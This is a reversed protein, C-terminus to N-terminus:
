EEKLSSLAVITNSKVVGKIGKLTTSIFEELGKTGAVAVKLLYDYEGAIHHCELVNESLIISERFGKISGTRDLVVFIFAVLTLGLQERNLKITFREIMGKEELKRIRESVAPVSLHTLKSIQSSTIRSNQKLLELIKSDIADM